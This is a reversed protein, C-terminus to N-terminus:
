IRFRDGRQHFDCVFRALVKTVAQGSCFAWAAAGGAMQAFSALAGRRPHSCCILPVSNWIRQVSMGGVAHIRRLIFTEEIVDWWRRAVHFRHARSQGRSRRM